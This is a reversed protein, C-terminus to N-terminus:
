VTLQRGVVILLGLLAAGLLLLSNPEPAVIAACPQPGPPVLPISVSGPNGAFGECGASKAVHAVAYANHELDNAILVSSANTWNGNLTASLTPVANAFSPGDSSLTLNFKGFGDVNLSGTRVCANGIFTGGPCEDAHVFGSTSNVSFGGNVNLAMAAGDLMLYPNYRTYTITATTGATNLNIVVAVFPPPAGPGALSSNPVILNFSFTSDASAPTSNILGFILFLAPVVWLKRKM